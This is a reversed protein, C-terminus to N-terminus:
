HGRAPRHGEHGAGGAPAALKKRVVGEADTGADGTKLDNAAAGMLSQLRM